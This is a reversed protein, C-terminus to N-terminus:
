EQILTEYVLLDNYFCVEPAVYPLSGCRETLLRTRGSERLKYVSCLGFDSIKLNGAADLLLNEPKLDRHCVGESHVYIQTANGPYFDAITKGLV